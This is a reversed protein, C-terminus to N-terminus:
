THIMILYIETNRYGYKSINRYEQIWVQIYEQMGTDMGPYIGIGIDMGLYIGTNM